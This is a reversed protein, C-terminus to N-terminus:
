KDHNDSREKDFQTLLRDFFDNMIIEGIDHELNILIITSKCTSTEITMDDNIFDECYKAIKCIANKSKRQIKTLTEELVRDLFSNNM